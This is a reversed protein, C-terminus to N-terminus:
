AVHTDLYLFGAFPLCWIERCILITARIIKNDPSQLNHVEESDQDILCLESPKENILVRFLDMVQLRRKDLDAMMVRNWQLDMVHLRRKRLQGDYSQRMPPGYGTIEQHFLPGYGAIEKQGLQGNSSYRMPSRYCANISSFPILHGDSSYRLSPWYGAIEKHLFFIIVSLCVFM